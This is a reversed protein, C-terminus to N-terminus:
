ESTVNRNPPKKGGFLFVVESYHAPGPDAKRPPPTVGQVSACCEPSM